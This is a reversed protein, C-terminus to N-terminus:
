RSSIPIVEALTDTVSKGWSHAKDKHCIFSMADFKEGNILHGGGGGALPPIRSRATWPPM